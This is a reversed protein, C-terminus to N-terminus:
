CRGNTITCVWLFTHKVVMNNFTDNDPDDSRGYGIYLMGGELYRMFDLSYNNVISVPM